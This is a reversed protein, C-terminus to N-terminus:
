LTDAENKLERKEKMVRALLSSNVIKIEVIYIKTYNESVM